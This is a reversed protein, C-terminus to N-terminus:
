NKTVVEHKWFIFKARVGTCHILRFSCHKTVNSSQLVKEKCRRGRM